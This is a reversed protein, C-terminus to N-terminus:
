DSAAAKSRGTRTSTKATSDKAVPEDRETELSMAYGGSVLEKGLAAEVEVIQGPSANLDKGCAPTNMKVKM